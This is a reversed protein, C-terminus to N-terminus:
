GQLHHLIQQALPCGQLHWPPFTRFLLQPNPLRRPVLLGFGFKDAQMKFLRDSRRLQQEVDQSQQQEDEEAIKLRLINGLKTLKELTAKSLHEPLNVKLEQSLSDMETIIRYEPTVDPNTIYKHKHFVTGSIRSAKM